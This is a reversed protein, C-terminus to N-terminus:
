ARKKGFSKTLHFWKFEEKSPRVKLDRYAASRNNFWDQDYFAVPLNPVPDRESEKNDVARRRVGPLTGRGGVGKVYDRAKDIFDLEDDLRRRWRLKKVRYVTTIIGDDSEEGSEDSSMGDVGLSKIVKKLWKWRKYDEELRAEGNIIANLIYMRRDYKQLSINTVSSRSPGVISAKVRRERHRAAILRNEKTRDMRAETEFATEKEGNVVRTKSQNWFGRCRAFKESILEKLYGSSVVMDTERCCVEMEELLHQIVKQNWLTTTPNDFDFKLAEPDPASAV